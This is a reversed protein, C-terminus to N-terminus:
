DGGVPWENVSTLVSVTSLDSSLRILHRSLKARSFRELSGDRKVINM